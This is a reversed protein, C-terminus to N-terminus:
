AAKKCSVAFWVASMGILLVGFGASACLWYRRSVAENASSVVWAPSMFELQGTAKASERSLVQIASLCLWGTLTLAIVLYALSGWLAALPANVM